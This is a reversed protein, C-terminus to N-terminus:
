KQVTWDFDLGEGNGGGQEQLESILAELKRVRKACTILQAAAKDTKMTCAGLKATSVTFEERLSVVMAEKEQLERQIRVVMETKEQLEREIRIMMEKKEKLELEIELVRKNTTTISTWTQTVTLTTWNRIQIFFGTITGTIRTITTKEKKEETTITTERNEEKDDIIKKNEWYSAHAASSQVITSYLYSNMGKKMQDVTTDKFSPIQVGEMAKPMRRLYKAVESRVVKDSVATNHSWSNMRLVTAHVIALYLYREIEHDMDLNSSATDHFLSSTDSGAKAKTIVAEFDEEMKTWSAHQTIVLASTTNAHGAIGGSSITTTTSWWWWWSPGVLPLRAGDVTFFYLLALALLLVGCLLWPRNIILRWCPDNKKTTPPDVVPPNCDDEKTIPPDVVPPDCDDEKPEPPDCGDEKPAPPDVVPPDCGDEKPAPPDCGDEKPVPPNVILPNCGDEKPAPPDCGDEKPVPPDVVPPDCGDEKPGPPDCGDEKPAPPDVVPPDCGDEKPALPDCDDEKPAPPDCDDEKPVPPDVVPLDCGDEKPTPPDCEDEKPAPPDCGDEKPIPPDVIPLDYGDENPTPPDCGDEKPAPPDYGDENPAPPDVVPPDCGDEKPAPPDCGDEKPASPDCDDEKPAPPDCDSEKPVPPDIVPPDCGDEKPAPPDVIPPDCGNEKSTPRICDSEVVVQPRICGSEVWTARQWKCCTLWSLLFHGLKTRDEDDSNDDDDGSNNDENLGQKMEAIANEMESLFAKPVSSYYKTGKVENLLKTLKNSSPFKEMVKLGDELEILTLEAAVQPCIALQDPSCSPPREVCVETKDLEITEKASLTQYSGNVTILKSSEGEAVTLDVVINKCEQAYIDPIAVTVKNDKMTQKEKDDHYGGCRVRSLTVGTHAEITIKLYRTTVSKLGIIFFEFANKIKTIDQNVFSYTGHTIDAIYKMVRPDHEVGLGFTYVPFKDTIDTDKYIPNNRNGGDSLFMMCSLRSKSDIDRNRLIEAGKKLADCMNTKHDVELKDICTTAKNRVDGNCMKTLDMRIEAKANFEVIALRDNDGLMKIVCKMAEKLHVLRNDRDMSKSTDLLAVVDVGAIDEASPKSPATVQVLVPFSKKGAREIAKTEPFVHVKVESAM